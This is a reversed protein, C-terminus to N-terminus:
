RPQNPQKPEAKLIPIIDAGREREMGQVKPLWDKGIRQLYGNLIADIKAEVAPKGWPGRYDGVRQGKVYFALQPVNGETAGEQAALGPQQKVDLEACRVEDGYKDRKLEALVKAVQESDRNGPEHCHIVVVCNKQNKIADVTAPDVQRTEQRAAHKRGFSIGPFAASLAATVAVAVLGLSILGRIWEGKREPSM